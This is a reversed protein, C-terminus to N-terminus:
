IRMALLTGELDSYKEGIYVLGTNTISVSTVKLGHIFTSAPPALADYNIDYHILEHQKARFLITRDVLMYREDAVPAGLIWPRQPGEVALILLLHDLSDARLM